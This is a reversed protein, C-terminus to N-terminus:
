IRNNYLIGILENMTSYLEQLEKPPIERIVKGTTKDTVVVAMKEKNRGYPTFDISINMSRLQEAIAEVMEGTQQADPSEQPPAKEFAEGSVKVPRVRSPATDTNTIAGAPRAYMSVPNVEM